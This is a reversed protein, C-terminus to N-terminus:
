RGLRIGLYLRLVGTFRLEKGSASNLLQVPVGLDWDQTRDEYPLRMARVDLDLGLHVTGANELGAGVLLYPFGQVEAGGGAAVYVRRDGLPFFRVRADAMLMAQREVDFFRDKHIGSYHLPPLDACDVDLTFPMRNTVLTGRVEVAVAGVPVVIQGAVGVGASSRENESFCGTVFPDPMLAIGPGVGVQVLRDTFVPELSQGCLPQALLSLLLVGVATPLTPAHRRGRTRDVSAPRSPPLSM